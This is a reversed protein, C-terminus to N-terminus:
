RCTLMRFTPQRLKNNGFILIVSHGSPYLIAVIEGVMMALKQETILYSYSVLLFFVCYIFFFFLFSTIIKMAKVHAQTNPDRGGKSNLKMQNIHRRLSIILIFFSILSFIFPVMAFLSFLTMPEFYQIKSMHFMETINKSDKILNHFRYGYSVIPALIIGVLFSVAFCGLLIWHVVRDTRWKLWLFLPHSFNAIKLCYFVNLCTAFWMSLYNFFIWFSCVIILIKSNEFVDPYLTTLIGHLVVTAILCMRSIALSTLVYDISSIKKKKIWDIWNVLGIYGNGLMGIIFEATIVITFIDKNSFM